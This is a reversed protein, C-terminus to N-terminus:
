EVNVTLNRLNESTGDKIRSLSKIMLYILIATIVVALPSFIIATISLLLAGVIEATNVLFNGDGNTTTSTIKRAVAISYSVLGAIGGGIILAVLWAIVNNDILMTSKVLIVGAICAFPIKLKDLKNDLFPIYYIGIEVLAALGFVVVVVPNSLWHMETTLEMLNQDQWALFSILFLPLFVRFGASASLGIGLFLSLLATETFLNM